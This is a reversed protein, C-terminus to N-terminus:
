LMGGGDKGFPGGKKGSKYKKAGKEGVKMGAQSARGGGSSPMQAVPQQGQQAKQSVEEEGKAYEGFQAQGGIWRLVADPVQHIMSYSKNILSLVITVYVIIYGLWMFPGLSHDKKLESSHALNAAVVHRYTANLFEMGVLSLLFGAVLGFIMLTPRIFVNTVLMVAPEARGLMEHQGDPSAIGIAVMPAALLTEIVSMLWGMVGFYFVIYPILPVYVATLMGFTMLMGFLMLAGGGLVSVVSCCVAFGPTASGCLSFAIALGLAIPIIWGMMIEAITIAQEGIYQLSTIPNGSIAFHCNGNEDCGHLFFSKGGVLMGKFARIFTNGFLGVLGTTEGSTMTNINGSNLQKLDPFGSNKTLYHQTVTQASDIWQKLDETLKSKDPPSVNLNKLSSFSSLSSDTTYIQHYYAGADAWGHKTVDKHSKQNSKWKVYYHQQRKLDSIFAQAMQTFYQQSGQGELCKKLSQDQKLECAALARGMTPMLGTKSNIGEDELANKLAQKTFHAEGASKPPVKIQDPTTITGCAGSSNINIGESQGKLQYYGHCTLVKMMNPLKTSLSLSKLNSSTVLNKNPNHVQIRNHVVVSWITDAAGVGQLVLWMMLIQLVCYGSKTPILLGIGMVSRIPVWASNFKKGLFEGENATNVLGFITTYSIVIVNLVLMVKNFVGFMHGFIYHPSESASGTLLNGVPGFVAKLMGYSQDQSAIQFFGSVSISNSDAFSVSALGALFLTIIIRLM